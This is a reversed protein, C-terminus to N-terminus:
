DGTLTHFMEATITESAAIGTQTSVSSIYAATNNETSPAFRSILQELTAGCYGDVLNGSSDFKAPVSLWEALAQWGIEVTPFVAFRPDGRLAGLKQCEANWELDGPNNNRQPRNPVGSTDDYFGEETAIAQLLTKL